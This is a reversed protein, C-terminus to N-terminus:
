RNNYLCGLPKQYASGSICICVYHVSYQVFHHKYYNYLQTLVLKLKKSYQVSECACVGSVHACLVSCVCVKINFTVATCLPTFVTTMESGTAAAVTSRASPLCGELPISSFM